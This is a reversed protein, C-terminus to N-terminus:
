QLTLIPLVLKGFIAKVQRYEGLKIWRLTLIIYYENIISIFFQNNILNTGTRACSSVKIINQAHKNRNLAKYMSPIYSRPYLSHSNKKKGKKVFYFFFNHFTFADFLFFYFLFFGGLQEEGRPITNNVLLSFKFGTDTEM